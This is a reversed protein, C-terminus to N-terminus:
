HKKPETIIEVQKELGLGHRVKEILPKRHDYVRSATSPVIPSLRVAKDKEVAKEWKVLVIWDCKDDDQTDNYNGSLQNSQLLDTLKQGDSLTAKRFPLATKTVTGIGVYGSGGSYAYIINGPELKEMIRRYRKAGGACIFSYKKSDDWSYPVAGVDGINFFWSKGDWIADSVQSDSKLVNASEYIFDIVPGHAEYIAQALDLINKDMAISRKVSEQFQSLLFRETETVQCESLVERIVSLIAQYSISVFYECKAPAGDPSLYIYVRKPYSEKPFRFFSHEYYYKTQGANEKARVKNEIICLFGNKPSRIVIDCRGKELWVEARVEVDSFDMVAIEVLSLSTHKGKDVRLTEIVLRKLFQAEFSHQNNPDLIWTLFRSVLVEKHSINLIQWLNPDRSELKAELEKFDSSFILAEAGQILEQYEM